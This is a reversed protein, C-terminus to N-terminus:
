AAEEPEAPLAVALASAALMAVVIRWGPGLDPVFRALSWAVLAGVVAVVGRQWRRRAAPALLAIFM